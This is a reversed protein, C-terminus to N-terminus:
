GRVFIFCLVLAVASLAQMARVPLLGKVELIRLFSFVILAPYIYALMQGIWSALTFFGALSVFYTIAITVLISTKRSMRGPFLRKQMFEAFLEVLICLTTLCALAIVLSSVILAVPGLVINTLAVLRQEPNIAMLENSYHSGVAVLGTYLLALMSAGLVGVMMSLKLSQKMSHKAISAQIYKQISRGFYLAALLDMMQYGQLAGLKFGELDTVSLEAQSGNSLLSAVIIVVLGVLLFPTLWRGILQVISEKRLLLFGCFSAFLLGILAEPVFPVLMHIGSNAVLICRAGVGFPGMLSLMLLGLVLSLGAGLPAFFDEHYKSSIITASLGLFPILVGGLLLGILAYFYNNGASVGVGLPYLLNGSGFFMAFLAFSAVLVLQVRRVTM